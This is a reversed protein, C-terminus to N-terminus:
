LSMNEQKLADAEKQLKGYKVEMDNMELSQKQRAEDARQRELSLKQEYDGALKKKQAESEQTFQDVFDSMRKIESEANDLLQENEGRLQNMTM